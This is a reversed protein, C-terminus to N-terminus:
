IFYLTNYYPPGKSLTFQPGKLTVQPGKSHLNHVKLLTFQPGKKLLATRGFRGFGGGYPGTDVENDSFPDLKTRALLRPSRRPANVYSQLAISNPTSVTQASCYFPSTRRPGAQHIRNPTSERSSWQCSPLSDDQDESWGCSELDDFRGVVESHTEISWSNPSEEIDNESKEM